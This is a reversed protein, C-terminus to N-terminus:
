RGNMMLWSLPLASVCKMFGSLWEIWSLCMSLLLANSVRCRAELQLAVLRQKCVPLWRRSSTSIPSFIGLVPIARHEWADRRAGSPEDAKGPNM